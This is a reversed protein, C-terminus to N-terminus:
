QAVAACLELVLEASREPREWFFLHGAGELIELRAGPIGAALVHANAVPIMRDADGHVVLAPVDIRALRGSADFGAIAQAQAMIVPIASALELATARFDAFAREDAAFGPSVNVEWGTRIAAERDGAMYAATLRAVVEPPTRTATPGGAFTCGLALTRVRGPHRLALEQAVMGGMSIGLVHAREVGLADLLGVADDALDALTFAGRLPGSHGIGRHDYAIVDLHPVLADTFPEGWHLHNGSMGQILLLPEGAGRRVYHLDLGNVAVTPM